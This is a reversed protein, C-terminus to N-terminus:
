DHNTLGKIKRVVWFLFSQCTQTISPKRVFKSHGLCFSDLAKVCDSCGRYIPKNTIPSYGVVEKAMFHCEHYGCYNIYHRCDVCARKNKQEIM